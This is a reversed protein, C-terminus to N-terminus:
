IIHLEIFFKNQVPKLFAETAHENDLYNFYQVSKKLYNKKM